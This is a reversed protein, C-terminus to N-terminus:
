SLRLRLAQSPMLPCIQHWEFELFSSPKTFFSKRLTILRAIFVNFLIASLNQDSKAPLHSAYINM